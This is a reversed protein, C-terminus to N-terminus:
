AASPTSLIQTLRNLKDYQNTTTMRTTSGQKFTIQGVLPSNAVYLYTASNNGDSVTQLRSAADYGYSNTLLPANASLAALTTRRLDADYGNTVSLGNLVGGSFSESLLENALNYTLTDTIGNWVANTQRGLRDYTYNVTPATNDSYSISTLDYANDDHHYTTTIGRAWTRTALRGAYTYQYSPGAVSNDYTKSTLWGRQPHYNWTTVRTGTGGVPAIWVRGAPKVLSVILEAEKESCDAGMTAVVNPLGNQNLWWVSTFGEVIILNDVPAKIRFGDYLFPTKRFEFIKGDRERAGPFRYRTNDEMTAADNVVRGAYGVLM